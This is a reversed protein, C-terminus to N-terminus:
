LVRVNSSSGVDHQTTPLCTIVQLTGQSFLIIQQQETAGTQQTSLQDWNGM